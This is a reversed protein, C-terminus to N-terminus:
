VVQSVTESPVSEGNANTATVYFWWKSGVTKGGFGYGTSLGNYAAKFYAGPSGAADPAEYVTYSTAGSVGTFHLTIDQQGMIFESTTVLGTPAPPPSVLPVLSQLATIAANITDLTQSM